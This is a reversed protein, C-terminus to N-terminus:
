AAARQARRSTHRLGFVGGLGLAMLLLSGPEPVDSSTPELSRGAQAIALVSQGTLATNYLAVDDVLGNFIEPFPGGGFDFQAGIRTDGGTVGRAVAFTGKSVGDIYFVGSAGAVSLAFHHLGGGGPYPIGSSPTSDTIRFVDSPNYGIYFGSGSQGQSILEVHAAGSAQEQAFLAVTFDGSAPIIKGALLGFGNVGNLNLAGNAITASGVLSGNLSGASDVITSGGDFRYEHVLAAHAVGLTALLGTAFASRLVTSIRIPM